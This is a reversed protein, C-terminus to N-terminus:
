QWLAKLAEHIEARQREYDADDVAGADHADDLDALEALLRRAEPKSSLQPTNRDAASPAKAGAAYAVAGVVALGVLVFGIVRITGQNGQATLGTATESGAAPVAGAPSELEGPLLAMALPQGADLSGGVYFNYQQDQFAQPGMPQLQDSSLDLGPQAALVSLSEVPYAFERELEVVDGTVMLHYSFFAVSTESGPPVPYSDVIGGPVEVYRDGATGEEFGLGVAINPLPIFVTERQGTASDTEPGIFTRDSRNGFLHIETVRLAQGFSQAIIHVSDLVVGSGDESTEHVSVTTELTSQDGDFRFPGASYLVDLYAVELWYELGPSTDLGDFRFGGSADTTTEQAGAELEGQMARLVVPLGEGVAPGGDTGNVAQGEVVGTDQALAPIALALALLLGLALWGLRRKTSPM